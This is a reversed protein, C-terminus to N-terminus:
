NSLNGNKSQGHTVEQASPIWFWTETIINLDNTILNLLRKCTFPSKGLVMQLSATKKKVYIIKVNKSFILPSLKDSQDLTSNKYSYSQLIVQFTSTYHRTRQDKVVAKSIISSKQNWIFKFITKELETLTAIQM